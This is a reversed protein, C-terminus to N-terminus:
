PFDPKRWWVQSGATIHSDFPFCYSYEDKFCLGGGCVCVLKVNQILLLLFYINMKELGSISDKVTDERGIGSPCNEVIYWGITM